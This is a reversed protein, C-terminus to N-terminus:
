IQGLDYLNDVLLRVKELLALNTTATTPQQLFSRELLAFNRYTDRIAPTSRHVNGTATCISQYIQQMPNIPPNIVAGGFKVSSSNLLLKTTIMRLKQKNQVVEPPNNAM